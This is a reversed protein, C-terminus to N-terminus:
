KVVFLRQIERWKAFSIPNGSAMWELCYKTPLLFSCFHHGGVIHKRDICFVHLWPIKFPKRWGHWIYQRTSLRQGYDELEGACGTYIIRTLNLIIDSDWLLTFIQIIKPCHRCVQLFKGFIWNQQFIDFKSDNCTM